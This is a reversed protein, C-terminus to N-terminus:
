LRYHHHDDRLEEQRFDNAAPMCPTIGRGALTERFADSDYGTPWSDKKERFSCVLRMSIRRWDKLKAFMNEVKHRQRYL